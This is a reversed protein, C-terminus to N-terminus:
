KLINTLLSLITPLIIPLFSGGKQLLIKKKNKITSKKQLKRLIEKQNSLKKKLKDDIKVNGNIVNQICECVVCILEKNASKIIAQRMQPNPSSLVKLYQINKKVKNM